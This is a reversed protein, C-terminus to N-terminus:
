GKADSLDELDISDIMVEMIVQFANRYDSDSSNENLNLSDVKNLIERRLQVRGEVWGVRRVLEALNEMEYSM